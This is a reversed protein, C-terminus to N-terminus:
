MLSKSVKKIWLSVLITRKDKYFCFWKARAGEKSFGVVDWAYEQANPYPSNGLIYSWYLQLKLPITDLTDTDPNDEWVKLVEGDTKNVVYHVHISADYSSGLTEPSGEAITEWKEENMYRIDIYAKEVWWSDSKLHMTYTIDERVTFNDDQVELVTISRSVDGVKKNEWYWRDWTIRVEEEYRLRVGRSVVPTSDATSASAWAGPFFASLNQTLIVALLIISVIRKWSVSKVM